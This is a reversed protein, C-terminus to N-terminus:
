PAGPLSQCPVGDNNGDLRHPDSNPGGAQIFFQNAEPWTEFDSCNVDNGFGADERWHRNLRNLVRLTNDLPPLTECPRNDLDRDLGYLNANPQDYIEFFHEAEDRHQFDDCVVDFDEHTLRGDPMIGECPIGNRNSDLAYLPDISGSHEEFYSNAADWTAFDDCTIDPVAFQDSDDAGLAGNAYLLVALALVGCGLVIVAGLLSSRFFWGSSTQRSTPFERSAYGRLSTEHQTQMGSFASSRVCLNLLKVSIHIRGKM